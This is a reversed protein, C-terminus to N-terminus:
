GRYGKHPPRVPIGTPPPAAMVAQISGHPQRVRAEIKEEVVEASVKPKAAKSAAKTM